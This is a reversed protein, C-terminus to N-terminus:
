PQRESAATTAAMGDDGEDTRLLTQSVWRGLRTRELARRWRADPKLVERRSEHWLMAFAYVAGALRGSGPRGRGRVGLDWLLVGFHQM